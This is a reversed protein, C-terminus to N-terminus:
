GKLPLDGEPGSLLVLKMCAPMSKAYDSLGEIHERTAPLAHEPLWPPLQEHVQAIYFAPATKVFECLHTIGAGSSLWNSIAREQTDLYDLINQLRRLKDAVDGEDMAQPLPAYVGADFASPNVPVQWAVAAAYPLRDRGFFYSSNRIILAAERGAIRCACLVYARRYELYWDDTELVFGVGYEDREPDNKPLHAARMDDAREIRKLGFHEFLNSGAFRQALFRWQPFSFGYRGIRAYFKAQESSATLVGLVWAEPLYDAEQVLACAKGADAARVAACVAQTFEREQM